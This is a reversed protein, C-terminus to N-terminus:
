QYYIFVKYLFVFDKNKNAKKLLYMSIAASIRFIGFKSITNKLKSYSKLPQCGKRYNSYVRKSNKM